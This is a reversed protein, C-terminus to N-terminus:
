TFNQLLLLIPDIIEFDRAISLICKHKLLVRELLQGWASILCKMLFEHVVLSIFLSDKENIYNKNNSRELLM